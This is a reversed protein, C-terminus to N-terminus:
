ARVGQGHNRWEALFEEWTRGATAGTTLLNAGARMAAAARGPMRMPLLPRRKGAARLYDRILEDM